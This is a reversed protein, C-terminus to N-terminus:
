DRKEHSSEPLADQAQELANKRPEEGMKRMTGSPQEGDSSNQERAPPLAAGRASSLFTKEIDSYSSMRTQFGDGLQPALWLMCPQAVLVALLCCALLSGAPKATRVLFALSLAMLLCCLGLGPLATMGLFETPVAVHLLRELMERSVSFFCASLVVAAACLLLSVLAYFFRSGLPSLRLLAKGLLLSALCGATLVPGVIDPAVFSLLVSCFLAIWVFASGAQEARASKITAVAGGLVRGWSVFLALLLWPLIGAVALLPTLWGQLTMPNKVNVLGDRLPSFYGDSKELLIVCGLWVALVALFLTFGFLADFKQASRIRGLWCLFIASTLLPLLFYYIGGTLVALGAFLFGLPVAAGINEQRWGRCLCLCSFLTLAVALAETGVYHTLAVALPSCLLVLAAALAARLGFGAALGLGWLGMVALFASFAGVGAVLSQFSPASGFSHFIKLAAWCLFSFGPWQVSDGLVPALWSGQEMAQHLIQICRAEVPCYLTKGLFVPWVYAALMAAFIIPAFGSATDHCKQLGSEPPPSDKKAGGLDSPRSDKGHVNGAATKEDRVDEDWANDRGDGATGFAAEGAGAVQQADDKM